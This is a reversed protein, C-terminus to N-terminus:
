SWFWFDLTLCKVVSGGLCGMFINKLTCLYKCGPSSSVIVSYEGHETVTRLADYVNAIKSSMFDELTPIVIGM